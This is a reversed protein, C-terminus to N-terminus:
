ARQVILEVPLTSFGVPAASTVRSAVTFTQTAFVTKVEVRGVPSPVDSRSIQTIFRSPVPAYGSVAFVHESAGAALDDMRMGRHEAWRRYMDALIETFGPDDAGPPEAAPRLRLFVDTPDAHALGALASDLVYLRGAVLRHLRAPGDDRGSRRALREGLKQATEFASEPWTVYRGFACLSVAKVNYERREDILEQADLRLNDLGAVALFCVLTEVFRAVFLTGRGARATEGFGRSITIGSCSEAIGPSRCDIM